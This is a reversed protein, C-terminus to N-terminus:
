AEPTAETDTVEIDRIRVQIRGQAFDLRIKKGEVKMHNFHKHIQGSAKVNTEGNTFYPSLDLMEAKGNVLLNLDSVLETDIQVPRGRTPVVVDAEKMKIAKGM